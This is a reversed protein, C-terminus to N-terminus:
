ALATNGSPRVSSKKFLESANNDSLENDVVCPTVSKTTPLVVAPNSIFDHWAARPSAAASFTDSLLAALSGHGSSFFVTDERTSEGM